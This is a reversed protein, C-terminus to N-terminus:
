RDEEKQQSVIGIFPTVARLFAESCEEQPVHGCGEFVTLQAGPIEGALRISEKTKVIRDDDGTVVLVPLNLEALREELNSPRSARTLEWLAVDWNDAQLPKRYNAIIEPTLKGPDHWAAKLIDM